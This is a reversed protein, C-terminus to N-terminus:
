SAPVVPAFSTVTETAATTISTPTMNLEAGSTSIAGDMRIDEELADLTGSDAVPGVFRFWGATGDAVAVGSWAQTAVKALTGADGIASADELHLGNLSFNGGSLNADTTSITTASSVVAKANDAVGRGKKSTLTVVAGSASADFDLNKRSRNLEAALATATTSLDTDFTVANDLISISDVTVDDVSGSAGSDLTVTGAARTEATFAGSADTYTVLLTGTPADNASAPQAGSYVEMKGGNLAQKLSGGSGLFNQLGASIRLTM